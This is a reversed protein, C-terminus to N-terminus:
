ANREMSCQTRSVAALDWIKWWRIEHRSALACVEERSPRSTFGVIRYNSTHVRLIAGTESSLVAEIDRLHLRNTCGVERLIAGGQQIVDPM